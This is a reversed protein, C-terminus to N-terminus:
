GRQGDLEISMTSAGENFYNNLTLVGEEISHLLGVRNFPAELKKLYRDITIKDTDIIATVTREPLRHRHEIDLTYADKLSLFKGWLTAETVEGYANVYLTYLEYRLNNKKM